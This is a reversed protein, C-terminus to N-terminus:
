NSNQWFLTRHVQCGEFVMNEQCVITESYQDFNTPPWPPASKPTPELFTRSQGLFFKATHGGGGRIDKRWFEIGYTLGSVKTNQCKNPGCFVLPSFLVSSYSRHMGHGRNINCASCGCKISKRLIMKGFIMFQTSNLIIMHISVAM